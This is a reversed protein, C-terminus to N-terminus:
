RAYDERCTQLGQAGTTALQSLKGIAYGSHADFSFHLVNTSYRPWVEVKQYCRKQGRVTLFYDTFLNGVM